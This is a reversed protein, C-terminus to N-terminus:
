KVRYNFRFCVLPVKLQESLHENEDEMQMLNTRLAELERNAQEYRQNQAALRQAM